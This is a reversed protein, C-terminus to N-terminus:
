IYFIIAIFTVFGMKHKSSYVITVNLANLELCHEVSFCSVDKKLYQM